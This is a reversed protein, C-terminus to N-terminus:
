SSLTRRWGRESGRDLDRRPLVMQEEQSNEIRRHGREETAIPDHLPTMPWSLVRLMGPLGASPAVSPRTTAWSRGARSGAATDGPPAWVVADCSLSGSTRAM